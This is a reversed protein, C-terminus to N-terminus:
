LLFQTGFILKHSDSKSQNECFVYNFILRATQGLIYYNVGATYERTNNHSIDKDPNFDDFRLLGEIKKTFRYAITANYGYRKKETIGSAGNSGDANQFEARLWFKKYDYAVAASTVFFDHSNREGTTIGGGLNLNGYKGNLGALPKLNLWLDTEVGPMFESYWTDSSYGGIDYDAYKYNGKLRIGTKRVNAFNRATQTRNIFPLTYPSQGGEIGVTPRSTGFLLTNNKIRNTEIWADLVARHFFNDHMPTIDFLTNFGEKGSKFKGKFGVNILAPSYKFRSDDDINESFNGQYSFQSGIEKLPGKKFNLKLQDKFMGEPSNLNYDREIIGKLAEKSYPSFEEPELVVPYEGEIKQEEPELIIPQEFPEELALVIQASLLILFITLLKKM